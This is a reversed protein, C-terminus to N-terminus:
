AMLDTDIAMSVSYNDATWWTERKQMKMKNKIKQKKVDTIICYHKSAKISLDVNLSDYPAIWFM